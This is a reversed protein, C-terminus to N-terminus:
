RVWGLAGCYMWAAFADPREGWERLSTLIAALEARTAWGEGVILATMAAAGFLRDLVGRVLQYEGVRRVGGPDVCGGKTRDFGAELM